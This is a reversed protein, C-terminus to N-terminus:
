GQRQKRLADFYTRAADGDEDSMPPRERRERCNHCVQTGGHETLWSHVHEPRKEYGAALVARAIVGWTGYNDREERTSLLFTNAMLAALEQEQTSM